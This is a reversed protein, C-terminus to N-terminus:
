NNFLNKSGKKRYCYLVVLILGCVFKNMIEDVEPISISSSTAGNDFYSTSIPGVSESAVSKGDDVGGSTDTGAGEYSAIIIQALIADTPIEDNPFDECLVTANERPFLGSQTSLVRTGSVKREYQNLRMFGKILARECEADDAPLTIAWVEAAARAGALDSFSNDTNTPNAPDVVNLPM